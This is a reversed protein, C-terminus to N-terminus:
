DGFDLNYIGLEPRLERYSISLFLIRLQGKSPQSLSNLVRPFRLVCRLHWTIKYYILQPFNLYGITLEMTAVTDFGELQLLM